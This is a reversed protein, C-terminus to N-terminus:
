HFIASRHSAMEQMDKLAQCHVIKGKLHILKGCFRSPSANNKPADSYDFHQQPFFTTEAYSSLLQHEVDKTVEKDEGETLPCRGAFITVSDIMNAYFEEDYEKNDDNEDSFEPEESNEEKTITLQVPNFGLAKKFHFAAMGLRQKWIYIGHRKLCIMANLSQQLQEASNRQFYDKIQADSASLIEIINSNEGGSNLAAIYIVNMVMVALISSAKDTNDMFKDVITLTAEDIGSGSRFVEWRRVFLNWVEISIGVDIKPGDFKPGRPAPAHHAPPPISPSTTSHALGHNALLAIALAESVANSIYLIIILRVVSISDQLFKMGGHFDAIEMHLGELREKDTFGNELQLLSSVGREVTLQDGVVGQVKLKTPYERDNCPVYEDHIHTM